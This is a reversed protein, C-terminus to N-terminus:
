SIGHTILLQKLNYQTNKLKTIQESLSNIENDVLTKKFKITKQITKFLFKSKTNPPLKLHNLYSHEEINITEINNHIKKTNVLFYTKM